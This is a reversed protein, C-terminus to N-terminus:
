STSLIIRIISFKMSSRQTDCMSHFDNRKLVDLLTRHLTSEDVRLSVKLNSHFKTCFKHQIKSDFIKRSSTGLVFM